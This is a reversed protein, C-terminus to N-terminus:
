KGTYRYVETWSRGYASYFDIEGGQDGSAWSGGRPNQVGYAEVTRGGGIYIAVHSEPRCLIDGRQLHDKVAAWPYRTFGGIAKLDTWLTDADGTQQKGRYVRQYVPNKRWDAIVPFGAKDLAHYVFSSCDYDPGERSGTYPHSPTANEKGQSYGHVPNRAIDVAWSVATEMRGPAAALSVQAASVMLMFAAALGCLQGSKGTHEFLWKKMSESRDARGLADDILFIICLILFGTLRSCSHNKHFLRFDAKGQELIGHQIERFLVYLSNRLVRSILFWHGLYMNKYEKEIGNYLLPASFLLNIEVGDM